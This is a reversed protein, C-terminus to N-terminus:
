GGVGKVVHQVISLSIEVIVCLQGIGKFLGSVDHKGDVKICPARPPVLLDRVVKDFVGKLYDLTEAIFPSHTGYHPEAPYFRQKGREGIDGGAGTMHIEKRVAVSRDPALDM